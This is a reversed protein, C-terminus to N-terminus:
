KSKKLPCVFYTATEFIELHGLDLHELVEEASTLEFDVAGDGDADHVDIGQPTFVVMQVWWRGGNYDPQGPYSDSVGRQGTLGSMSFDFLLDVSHSPPNKFSTPTLVTDWTVGGAWLADEVRIAKAFGVSPFTALILAGIVLTSLTVRSSRNMSM